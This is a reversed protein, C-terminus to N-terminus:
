KSQRTGHKKRLDVGLEKSAIDIMLDQLEMKLRINCLEKKLSVVDDPLEESQNAVAILQEEDQKKKHRTIMRYVTTSNSGYKEALRRYSAGKTAWENILQAQKKKEM